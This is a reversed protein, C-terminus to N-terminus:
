RAEVPVEKVGAEVLAHCNACLLVCKRAETRMRAIGRTIGRQSLQFAKTSPDRHHFQLPSQHENFGCIRCCGGADEVLQRKVARRRESVAEISCRLCRFGGDPRQFFTTRGHVACRLSAKRLGAAKAADGERRRISRETALGFRKLWYRLTSYSLGLEKAIRRIPLGQAVLERLRQGDISGKPAHREAHAAKLGHKKLWYSVTSPHKGVLEGITDLSMETALCDELFGKDM